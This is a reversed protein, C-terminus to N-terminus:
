TIDLYVLIYPFGSSLGCKLFNIRTASSGFVPEFRSVSFVIKLKLRTEFNLRSEFEKLEAEPFKFHVSHNLSM